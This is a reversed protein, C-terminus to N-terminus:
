SLFERLMFVGNDMHFVVNHTIIPRLSPVPIIILRYLLDFFNGLTKIILLKNVIQILPEIM